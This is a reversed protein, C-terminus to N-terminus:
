NSPCSCVNKIPIGPTSDAVGLYWCIHGDINIPLECHRCTQRESVHFHYGHKRLSEVIEPFMYKNIVPMCFGSTESVYKIMSMIRPLSLNGGQRMSIAHAEEATIIKQEKLEKPEKPEKPEETDTRRKKTTPSQPPFEYYGLPEPPQAATISDQSQNAQNQKEDSM